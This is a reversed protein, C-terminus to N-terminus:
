RESVWARRVGLATLLDAGPGRVGTAFENAHASNVDHVRCWERLSPKGVEFLRERLQEDTLTSSRVLRADNVANLIEAVAFALGHDVFDAERGSHGGHPSTLVGSAPWNEYRGGIRALALARDLLDESM